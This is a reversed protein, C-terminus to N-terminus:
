FEINNENAFKALVYLQKESVRMNRRAQAVISIIMDNEIHSFKEALLAPSNNVLEDILRKTVDIRNNELEKASAKRPAKYSKKATAVPATYFPTGDENTLPAFEIMLVKTVGNFDVTVNKNDQAIVTGIGLTRHNVTTSM